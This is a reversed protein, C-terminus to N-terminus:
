FLIWNKLWIWWGLPDKYTKYCRTESIKIWLTLLVRSSCRSHYGNHYVGQMPFPNNSIWFTFTAQLETFDWNPFLFRSDLIILTSIRVTTKWRIGITWAVTAADEHKIYRVPHVQLREMTDVSRRMYASLFSKAVTVPLDVKIGIYRTVYHSAFGFRGTWTYLTWM